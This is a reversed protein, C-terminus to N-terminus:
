APMKEITSIPTGEIGPDRTRPAAAPMAVVPTIVANWFSTSGAHGFAMAATNM